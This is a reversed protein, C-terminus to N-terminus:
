EGEAAHPKWYGMFACRRRDFGRDKVLGRRVGKVTYADAAVWTYLDALVESRDAASLARLGARADDAAPAEAPEGDEVLFEPEEWVIGEIPEASDASAFGADVDAGSVGALEDAWGLVSEHLARGREVGSTDRPLWTVQVQSDTPLAHADAATPIELFARGRAEAPLTRLVNGIAPLATEDGVLLFHAADGPKFALGVTDHGEGNVDPGILIIESGIEATQAFASAPSSTGHCVVDIDVEGLDRRVHRPTYTRMIPRTENPEERWWAAWDEHELITAIQTPDAFVLKIRQDLCTDGFDALEPHAFTLRVFNPSLRTRTVLKAPFPRFSPKVRSVPREEGSAATPADAEASAAPTSTM